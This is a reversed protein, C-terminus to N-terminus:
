ILPIFYRAPNREVDERLHGAASAAGENRADLSTPRYNRLAHLLFKVALAQLTPHAQELANIFDVAAWDYGGNNVYHTLLDAIHGAELRHAVQRLSVKFEIGEVDTLTLMNRDAPTTQSPNM